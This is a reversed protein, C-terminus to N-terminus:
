LLKRFRGNDQKLILLFAGASHSASHNEAL